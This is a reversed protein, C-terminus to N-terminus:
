NKKKRDIALTIIGSLALAALGVVTTLNSNKKEGTQPLTRTAQQSVVQKNSKPTKHTASPTHAVSATQSLVPTEVSKKTTKTTREEMKNKNDASSVKVAQHKSDESSAPEESPKVVEKYVYTVDIDKGDVTGV